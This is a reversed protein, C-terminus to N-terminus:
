LGCARDMAGARQQVSSSRSKLPARLCRAAWRFVQRSEPDRNGRREHGKGAIAPGGDRYPKVLLLDAAGFEGAMWAAISDSTVDWSHPLPDANRLWRLPALVPVSGAKLALHVMVGSDKGISYLMVPNQFEAVVERMIAISEAELRKLHAPLARAPAPVLTM